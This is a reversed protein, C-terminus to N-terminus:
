KISEVSKIVGMDILSEYVLGNFKGFSGNILDEFSGWKVVHPEDHDIEGVYDTALYTYSMSGYKHMAFVLIMNEKKVIIGTEEITERIATEIPDNNDCEEMKGGSLGFNTHDTKRSVCLVEGEKNIIVLQATIPINM